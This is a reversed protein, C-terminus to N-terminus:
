LIFLHSHYFFSTIVRGQWESNNLGVTGNGNKYPRAMERAFRVTEMRYQLQTNQGATSVVKSWPHIPTRQYSVVPSFSRFTMIKIKAWLTVHMYHFTVCVNLLPPPILGQLKIERHLYPKLM